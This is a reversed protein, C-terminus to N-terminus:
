EDLPKLHNVNGADLQMNSKRKNHAQEWEAMNWDRGPEDHRRVFAEDLADEGYIGDQQCKAVIEDFFRSM